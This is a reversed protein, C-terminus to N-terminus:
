QATKQTCLTESCCFAIFFPVRAQTVSLLLYHQTYVRTQRRCYNVHKDAHVSFSLENKSFLVTLHM